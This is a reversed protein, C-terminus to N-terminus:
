EGTSGKTQEEVLVKCLDSNGLTGLLQGTLQSLDHHVLFTTYGLDHMIHAVYLGKQAFDGPTWPVKNMKLIMEIPSSMGIIGLYNTLFMGQESQALMCLSQKADGKGKLQVQLGAARMVAVVCSSFPDLLKDVLDNFAGKKIQQECVANSVSDTMNFYIYAAVGVAEYIATKM